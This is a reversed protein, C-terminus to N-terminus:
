PWKIGIPTSPTSMVSYETEWLPSPQCSSCEKIMYHGCNSCKSGVYWTTGGFGEDVENLSKTSCKPCKKPTSM